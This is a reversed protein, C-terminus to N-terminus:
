PPPIGLEPTLNGQPLLVGCSLPGIPVGIMGTAKIKDSLSAGPRFHPRFTCGAAPPGGWSRVNGNADTYNPADPHRSAQTLAQVADYYARKQPPIPDIFAPGRRANEGFRQACREKEEPTLRVAALDCGVGARLAGRVGEDAAEGSGREGGSPQPATAVPPAPRLLAPANAAPPAAKASARTAAPRAAPARRARELPPQTWRPMLWVAAPPRPPERFLSRPTGLGIATLVVAHALLAFAIAAARRRRQATRGKAM